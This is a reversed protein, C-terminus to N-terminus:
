RFNKKKHWYVLYAAAMLHDAHPHTDLIWELTLGEREIWDLAWDASETSTRARAPNFDRWFFFLGFFAFAAVAHGSPFCRGGGGDAM